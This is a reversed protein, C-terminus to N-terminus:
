VTARRETEYLRLGHRGAPTARWTEITARTAAGFEALPPLAYPHTPPMLVPAALAAFTLDAVSFQDGALFRRGDALLEDVRAFTADLKAVSRAVGAPSINLGRRLLGLAVPRTARLVAREWRPVDRGLVVDDLDTRPMLQDYGWRRAAPGLQRDFDDELALATARTTPDAPLLCGPRHGDAWAVIDTSDTLRARGAVLVPVTPASTM